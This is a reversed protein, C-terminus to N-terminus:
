ATLRKSLASLIAGGPLMEILGFAALDDLAAGVQAASVHYRAVAFTILAEQPVPKEVTANDAIVLFIAVRVESM